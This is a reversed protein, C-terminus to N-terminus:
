QKEQHTKVNKRAYELALNKRFCIPKDIARAVLGMFILGLKRAKM